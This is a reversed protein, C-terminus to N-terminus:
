SDNNTRLALKICDHKKSDLAETSTAIASDTVVRTEFLYRFGNVLLDLVNFLYSTIIYTMMVSGWM